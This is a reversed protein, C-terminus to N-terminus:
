NPLLNATEFAKLAELGDKPEAIKITDLANQYSTHLASYAAKYGADDRPKAPDNWVVNFYRTEDDGTVTLGGAALWEKAQKTNKPKVENINFKEVLNDSTTYLINELRGALYQTKKETETLM